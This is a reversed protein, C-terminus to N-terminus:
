SSLYLVLLLLMEMCSFDKMLLQYENMKDLCEGGKISCSVDNDHESHCAV